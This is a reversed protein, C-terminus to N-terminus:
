EMANERFDRIQVVGSEQLAEYLSNVKTRQQRQSGGNRGIDRLESFTFIVRRKARSLAVFFASTEEEKQRLYNWFAADELGLFVVTDYELGKSKHITMIPISREGQLIEVAEDWRGCGVYVQWLLDSLKGVIHSLHDGRRYQPFVSKLVSLDLHDLIRYFESQLEHSSGTTLLSQRLQDLFKGLDTEIARLDRPDEAITDIGRLLNLTEITKTCAESSRSACGLQIFDLIIRVCEETLLDQFENENRASFSPEGELANILASGYVSPHQRVIVCIQRPRLEEKSLWLRISAAIEDTEQEVSGFLWVECIGDKKDWRRDASVEVCQGTIRETLIRQIAILRPASRHNMLLQKKRAGFDDIYKQFAERDAGAWVMIRQKDDGVATVITDEDGFCTRVLRYQARTTDQFEDLFVHSYTISLADRVMPNSRILLEALVSIMPFSLYSPADDDGKLMLDWIERVRTQIRTSTEVPLVSIESVFHRHLGRRAERSVSRLGLLHKYADVVSSIQYDPEPRYEEPLALRFRDLLSKAFADYTMSAFRISLEKGVRKSVRDSINKAAYSSVRV